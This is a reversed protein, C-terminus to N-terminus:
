FLKFNEPLVHKPNAHHFTLVHHEIKSLGGNTSIVPTTIVVASFSTNQRLWDNIVDIAPQFDIETPDQVDFRLDIFAIAPGEQTIQQKAHKLQATIGQERGKLTLGGFRNELFFGTGAPNSTHFLMQTQEFSPAFSPAPTNAAIGNGQAFVQVPRILVETDGEKLDHQQNPELKRLNKIITNIEERNILEASTFIEVLASFQKKAFLKEIKLHMENFLKAQYEEVDTKGRQKCEIEVAGDVIMDATKEEGEPIFDVSHDQKLMMAAVHFEYITSEVKKTQLSKLENIREVVDGCQAEVVMVVSEAIAHLRAIALSDIPDEELQPVVNGLATTIPDFTKTKDGIKKPREREKVFKKIRREVWDEDLIKVLNRIDTAQQETPKIRM